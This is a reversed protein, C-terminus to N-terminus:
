PAKPFAYLPPRENMIRPKRKSLYSSNNRESFRRVHRNSLDYVKVVPTGGLLLKEPVNNSVTCRSTLRHTKGEVGRHTGDWNRRANKLLVATKWNIPLISSDVTRSNQYAVAQFESLSTKPPHISVSKPCTLEKEEHQAITFVRVLESLYKSFTDPCPRALSKKSFM